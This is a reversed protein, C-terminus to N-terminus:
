LLEDENAAYRPLDRQPSDAVSAYTGARRNLTFKSTILLLAYGICLPPRRYPSGVAQIRGFNLSNGNTAFDPPPTVLLSILFRPREIEM